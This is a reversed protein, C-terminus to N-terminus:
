NGLYPSQDFAQDIARTLRAGTASGQALGNLVAAWRVTLSPGESGTVEVNPDVMEIIISGTKTNTVVTTPYGGYWPYYGGYGPYGGWYNWGPYSGWYPDYPYYTYASYNNSVNAQVLLILDAGNTAPDMERTYGLAAMNSAVRDLIDQDFAHAYLNNSNDLNIAVVTDPMAWTQATSFAFSDDYATIVIDADQVNLLEGPYCGGMTMAAIAFALLRTGGFGTATGFRLGTM